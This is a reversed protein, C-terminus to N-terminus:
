GKPTEDPPPIEAAAAHKGQPPGALVPVAVLSEETPPQQRGFLTAVWGLLLVWSSAALLYAAVLKLAVTWVQASVAGHPKAAFFTAPLLVGLLAALVVGLWWRWNWLMRLIRRVPLHWGWQASAAGCPIFKAPLVIWRLVWEAITLWRVLHTYTFITARAHASAQSNLYGAWDPIQDDCWDLFVWFAAGVAIWVLLTIAGWVLKIRKGDDDSFARVTAAQLELASIALLIPILLTLAVQWIHKDPLRTWALGVAILLPMGVFQAVVWRKARSVRLLLNKM